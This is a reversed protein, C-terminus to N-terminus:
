AGSVSNELILSIAMLSFSTLANFIAIDCTGNKQQQISPSIACYIDYFPGEKAKSKGKRDKKSKRSRRPEHEDDADVQNSPYAQAPASHPGYPGTGAAAAQLYLPFQNLPVPEPPPPLPNQMHPQNYMCIEAQLREVAAEYESVKRFIGDAATIVYSVRIYEELEQAKDLLGAEVAQATTQKFWMQRKYEEVGLYQDDRFQGM